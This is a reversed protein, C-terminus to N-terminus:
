AGDVMGRRLRRVEDDDRGLLEVERPEARLRAERPLVASLVAPPPSPPM